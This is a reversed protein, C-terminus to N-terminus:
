SCPAIARLMILRIYTLEGRIGANNCWDGTIKRTIAKAHMLTM